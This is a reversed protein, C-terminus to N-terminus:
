NKFPLRRYESVQDETVTQIHQYTSKPLSFYIRQSDSNTVKACKPTM